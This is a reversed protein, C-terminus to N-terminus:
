QKVSHLGGPRLGQDKIKRKADDQNKAKITQRSKKGGDFTDYDFYPKESLLFQAFGDSVNEAIARARGPTSALGEEQIRQVLSEFRSSPTTSHVQHYSEM